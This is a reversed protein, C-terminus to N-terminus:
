KENSIEKLRQKAPELYRSYDTKRKGGREHFALLLAPSGDSVFGYLIRVNFGKGSLHMSYLGDGLNEFEQQQCANVVLENLFSLRVSLLTLFKSEFGSRAILNIIEAMLLHHLYGDFSVITSLLIGIIQDRNM